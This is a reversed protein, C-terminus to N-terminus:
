KAKMTVTPGGDPGLSAVWQSIAAADKEGLMHDAEITRADVKAGGSRLLASLAPAFPSYLKDEQGTITLVRAKGLNAVSVNDLVPMSRMLVARKVLDPHLMMTAALLNAGNSYGVFTAHSLDLDKEEALRTLSTVFANAELKVDKQDFKVPTIRKYWRTGGDQMVRGRIGLLTARPWIKSALPVLSAENGGSGHLLVILESSANEPTYFRYIFRKSRSFNQEPTTEADMKKDRMTVGEGLQPTGTENKMSASLGNLAMGQAKSMVKVPAPQGEAFATGTTAALAMMIAAIFTKKVM